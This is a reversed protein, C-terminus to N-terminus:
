RHPPDPSRSPWVTGGRSSRPASISGDPTEHLGQRNTEPPRSLSLRSVGTHGSTSPRRCTTPRGGRGHALPTPSPHARGQVVRQCDRRPRQRLISAAGSRPQSAPTPSASPIASRTGRGCNERPSWWRSSAVQPDPPDSRASGRDLKHALGSRGAPGRTPEIQRSLVSVPSIQCRGPKQMQPRAFKESLCGSALNHSSWPPM